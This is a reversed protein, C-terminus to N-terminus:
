SLGIWNKSIQSKPRQSSIRGAMQNPYIDATTFIYRKFPKVTIEPMLVSILPIKHDQASRSLVTVAGISTPGMLLLASDKFVLKKFASIAM